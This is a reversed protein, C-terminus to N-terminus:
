DVPSSMSETTSSITFIEWSIVEWRSISMAALARDDGHRDLQDAALQEIVFQDFPKDENLSHIVYDRYVYAWPYTPEEFFVYGKNDAYRAIDLWYRGWREGYRPSALLRDVLREFSDPTSDAVFQDVDEPTPPLGLLDFTARRIRTQPDAIPTPSISTSPFNALIFTDIPSNSWHDAHIPPVSPKTM